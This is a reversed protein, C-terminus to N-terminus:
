KLQEAIAACGKDFEVIWKNGAESRAPRVCRLQIAHGSRFWYREVYDFETDNERASYVVENPDHAGDAARYAPLLSAKAAAADRFQNFAAVDAAGAVTVTVRALSNRGTPSPDPVQFVRAEPDGETQMIDQWGDPTQFTVAGGAMSVSAAHVAGALLLALITAVTTAAARRSSSM